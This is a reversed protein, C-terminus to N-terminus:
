KKGLEEASKLYKQAVSKLVEFKHSTLNCECIYKEDDGSGTKYFTLVVPGEKSDVTVVGEPAPLKMDVEIWKSATLSDLTMVWLDAEEEDLILRPSDGIWKWTSEDAGIESTREVGWTKPGYNVSVSKIEYGSTSYILHNRLDIESKGFIAPLNGSVLIVDSSGDLVVYSQTSTQSVKGVELTRIVSGNKLAQVMIKKDDTLGFKNRQNESSASGAKALVKLEKLVKEMNNAYAKTATFDSENLKWEDANKQLTIVAGPQNIVIQDFSESLRMVKISSKKGTVAAVICLVSLVAICALFVIKRKGIVM